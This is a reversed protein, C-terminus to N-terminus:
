SDQVIPAAKPAVARALLLALVFAVVTGLAGALATALSAWPVAPMAYDALPASQELARHEFGLKGAVSELGDAWSSAFPSVFIALGLSVILGYAILSRVPLPATDAPDLLQPRTQGIASLVLATIIAEGVGIIMHVGAM